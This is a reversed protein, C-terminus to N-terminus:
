MYLYLTGVTTHIVALLCILLLIPAAGRNSVLECLASSYDEGRAISQGQAGDYETQAPYTAPQSDLYRWGTLAQVGEKWRLASQNTTRQTDIRERRGSPHAVSERNGNATREIAYGTFRDAIM